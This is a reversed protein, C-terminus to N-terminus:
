KAVAAEDHGNAKAKKELAKELRAAEMEAKTRRRARTKKEVPAAAGITVRPSRDIYAEVITGCIVAYQASQSDLAIIRTTVGGLDEFTEYDLKSEGKTDIWIVTYTTAKPM